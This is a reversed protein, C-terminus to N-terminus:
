ISVKSSKDLETPCTYSNPCNPCYNLGYQKRLKCKMIKDALTTNESFIRNGIYQHLPIIFFFGMIILFLFRTYIDWMTIKELISMVIFGIIISSSDYLIRLFFRLNRDM